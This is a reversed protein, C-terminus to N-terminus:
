EVTLKWWTMLGARIATLDPDLDTLDTPFTRTCAALGVAYDGPVPFAEAPIAVSGADVTIALRLASVGAPDSSWTVSGDADLVVAVSSTFAQHAYDLVLPTGAALIEPVELIPVTPQQVSASGDHGDIEGPTWLAHGGAGWPFYADYGERLVYLGPEGGAVLPLQLNEVTNVRPHLGDIMGAEIGAVSSAQSVYLRLVAGPLAFPGNAVVAALWSDEPDSAGIAQGVLVIDSPDPPDPPIPSGATDEPPWPHPDPSDAAGATDAGADHSCAALLLCVAARV